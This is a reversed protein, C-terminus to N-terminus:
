NPPPFKMEFNSILSLNYAHSDLTQFTTSTIQLIYSDGFGLILPAMQDLLVRPVLDSGPLFDNRSLQLLSHASKGLGSIDLDWFHRYEDPDDSGFPRTPAQDLLNIEHSPPKIM